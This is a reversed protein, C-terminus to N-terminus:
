NHDFWILDALDAKKKVVLQLWLTRKLATGQERLNAQLHTLRGATWGQLGEVSRCHVPFTTQNKKGHFTGEPLKVYSNFGHGYFYISM